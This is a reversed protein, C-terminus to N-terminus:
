KKVLDDLQKYLMEVTGDNDIIETAKKAVELISLETSRQHDAEFEALTKSADDAKEGRIKMREFRIKIDAKIEVLVFNPLKSLYDIDAMRRIGEVVILQSADNDVDHAMTKAMIDEGFTSRMMESIKIFNDRSHELYFRSLADALMTSFRYTSAGHKEKLYKASEGKGSAMLGTFGLVVKNTM